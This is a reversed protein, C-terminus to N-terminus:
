SVPMEALFFSFRTGEGMCSDVKIDSKHLALIRKTIALGLGAHESNRSSNDAQYFRDFIYPLADSEIGCGDDEVSVMVGQEELEISLTVKGEANSHKLANGILNELVREILAIDGQVYPLTHNIKCDVTIGQQQARLQFKQVVDQALEALQIPELVPVTEHAELKALEFLAAVLTELHESNRLALDLYQQYEEPTLVAQKLKLTELYGYMIALPTRLDHSVNAVLERRLADQQKLQAMQESIRAAMASFSQSLRDVEDGGQKAPLKPPESYDSHQFDSMGRALQNIRRTLLHFLLLGALLGFLLSGAVAWGSLKAWLQNQILQEVHDYQEGRLVVYLYGEPKEASPVPTVSFAKQRDHSRPDDGLLPFAREDKLFKHISKLDVKERKVKGPEASYALITGNIDLLYIEISPNIVMYAMFTDKLAQQNLKGEAVLNREMVLNAALDRNLQQYLQQQHDHNLSLTIISYLLGVAIMLGVLTLALKSYLTRFM